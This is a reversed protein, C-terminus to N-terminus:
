ALLENVARIALQVDAMSNYVHPSLRLGGTAAGAIGYKEYLDTVLANMKTRDLGPMQAIVVGGSLRPDMPTVLKIKNNSALGEKLATALATTRAEVNEVGITRHFDVAAAVASVTGDDRQGLTEFKKSAVSGTLSDKNWGVSVISPWIEAVREKRVYLVGVQKPGMFWKHASASYSDCGIEKLNLKLYGWTQAGDLHVYINRQRAMQCLERAPLRIGSTNSIYTISLVRTKPSLAAEFAKVIDEPGNLAAPLTVRKVTFGYRAARVDWATNNCQHNQEWLVVEDGAKLPVGNNITNNAESTNRVLAIEDASVGLHEAVKSRSQTALANFKARNPNSIDSDEDRNLEAVRDSVLRPSPCLNAANMPIKGFALPFQGAVLAWYDESGNAASLLPKLQSTTQAALPSWAFGVGAGALGGIFSRRSHAM